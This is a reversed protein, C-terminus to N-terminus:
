LIVGLDVIVSFGQLSKLFRMKSINPNDDNKHIKCFHLYLSQISHFTKSKDCYPCILDIKSDNRSAKRLRLYKYRPLLKLSM